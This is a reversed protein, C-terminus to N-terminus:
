GFRFSGTEEPYAIGMRHYGRPLGTTHHRDNPIKKLTSNIATVWSVQTNIIELIAFTRRIMPKILLWKLQHNNPPSGWTLM